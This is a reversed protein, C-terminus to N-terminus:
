LGGMLWIIITLIISIPLWLGLAKLLLKPYSIPVNGVMKGTQGNMAFKYIKDKYNINLLWVPLLVYESNKKISNINNSIITVNSYGKITEKLAQISSNKSRSEARIYSDEESVDYKEALFGSMYSMSFDKLKDYNYPEISDMIDDDFKTSGDAPIREFSMSGTREINYYDTKTYRYNGSSWSSIRQASATIGGDTDINYLWFPIYVGKVEKINKMDYFDKPAFWKKKSFRYFEKQADDKVNAFPIIKEPKFEGQLRKKIVTTNGCYVCSTATTNKDAVVVAGCNPCHYEEIEIDDIEVTSKAESNKQMEKEYKEFDELEYSAGCYECDWRQTKPNFKINATCSPCKHDLVEM